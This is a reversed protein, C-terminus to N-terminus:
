LYFGGGLVSTLIIQSPGFRQDQWTVFLRVTCTDDVPSDQVLNWFIQFTQGNPGQVDQLQEDPNNSNIFGDDLLDSGNDNKLLSDDLPLTRLFDLQSQGLAAAVTRSQAQTNAKIAGIQMTGLALFGVSIVFLAILAEILSFGKIEAFKEIM